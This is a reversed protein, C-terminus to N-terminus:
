ERRVRNYRGDPHITLSHFQWCDDPHKRTLRAVRNTAYTAFSTITASNFGWPLLRDGVQLEDGRVTELDTIPIEKRARPNLLPRGRPKNPM